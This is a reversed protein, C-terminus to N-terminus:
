SDVERLSHLRQQEVTLNDEQGFSNITSLFAIILIYRRM